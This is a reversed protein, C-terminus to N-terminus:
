RAQVVGSSILRQHLPSRPSTVEASTSRRTPPVQRYTIIAFPPKSTANWPSYWSITGSSRITEVSIKSAMGSAPPSLVTVNSSFSPRVVSDM